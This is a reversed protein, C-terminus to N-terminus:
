RYVYLLVDNIHDITKVRIGGMFRQNESTELPHLFLGTAHLLNITKSMRVVVRLKQMLSSRSTKDDHRSLSLVFSIKTKKFSVIVQSESM